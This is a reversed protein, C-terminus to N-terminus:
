SSSSWIYALDPSKTYPHYGSRIYLSVLRKLTQPCLSLEPRGKREKAQTLLRLLQLLPLRRENLCQPLSTTLLSSDCAHECEYSRPTHHFLSCVKPLLSNFVIAVWPGTAHRDRRTIREHAVREQRKRVSKSL